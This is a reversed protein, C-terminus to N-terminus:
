IQRGVMSGEYIAEMIVRPQNCDGVSYLEPVENGMADVPTGVPKSGVAIIVWDAEVFEEQGSNLNVAKVGNETIGIVKRETLIAVNNEEFFELTGIRHHPEMDNAIAPLQEIITVANQSELLYDTVECGVLGGGVVAVKKKEVIVKKQLLEWASVVTKSTLGPINPMIPEAGTAVVVADPKHEKVLSPTVEVGLEIKVGFKRLQTDLYDRLWLVKRRSQPTGALLLQGGVSKDKEYLTVQHGRMAAIRAAEMGGPGGGIVMVKKPKSAPILNAFERERGSEANVACRRAGGGRRRAASGILCELCSICLRIDDVREEMAKIPWQPDALLPRALGIFDAKGEKLLRECFDPHKLGGGAVVPVKVVKKIGEWLYEKWDEPSNMLGYITPSSEFIGAAVSIYAVGAMELIQAISRSEELTIGGPVFEVASIRIGVPYDAGVAQRVAKILELAFRMRNEPSGGFEDTRKNMFSSIFQNILYGHAGHLEIMDYGISKARKAANVYKEIMLYIEEKNLAKPRPYVAGLHSTTLPSSSVLEEGPFLIAKSKQRGPHNLQAIIKAGHAHVKEV